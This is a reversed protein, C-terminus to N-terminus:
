TRFSAEPAGLAAEPEAIPEVELQGPRFPTRFTFARATPGGRRLLELRDRAEAITPRHGAPVWWLALHSVVMREFWERRQGLVATHASAYTFARLSELSDWVSMNVLILDDDFPRIATADGKPTTLRWVFGPSRDALRNIPELLSVFRAIEPSDIPALLRGVNVQALQAPRDM